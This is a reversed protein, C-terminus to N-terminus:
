NGADTIGRAALARRLAEKARYTLNGMQRPTKHLVQGAETPTLEAFYLLHLVARYQPPIDAMAAHVARQREDRILLADLDGDATPLDLPMEELPTIRRMKRLHNRALNRGAAYLYARLNEDKLRPLRQWLAAFADAALDEATAPDVYRSLYGILGVRHARVLATFREDMHFQGKTFARVGNYCLLSTNKEAFHFFNEGYATYKKKGRARIQPVIFDTRM